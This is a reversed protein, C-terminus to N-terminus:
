FEKEVEELDIPFTCKLRAMDRRFWASRMIRDMRFLANLMRPTPYVQSLEHKGMEEAMKAEEEYVADATWALEEAVSAMKLHWDTEYM